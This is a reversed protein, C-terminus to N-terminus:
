GPSLFYVRRLRLMGKDEESLSKYHLLWLALFRNLDILEIHIAGQRAERKADATFGGTSVFLGVERNQRIIGRLEAIEGRTAKGRARHKVQVRLHPTETGLPDPYAIIDTGGDPGKSSVYPTSYGMGRLLAATLNQFEYPDLARIRNEIETKAHTEATEFDLADHPPLFRCDTKGIGNTAAAGFLTEARSVRYEKSTRDITKTAM